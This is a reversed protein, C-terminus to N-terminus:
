FELSTPTWKFTDSDCVIAVPICSGTTCTFTIVTGAALSSRDWDSVRDSPSRPPIGCTPTTTSAPTEETTITVPAPTPTEGSNCSDCAPVSELSTPTWKFTDSDCVIAVPICSGTTCTFTIVTGAALSSHDWDSTRDSPSRPPIGCTPTTTPAPTEETTTTVPAPTPTWGALCSDCAPVSLYLTVFLLVLTAMSGAVKFTTGM